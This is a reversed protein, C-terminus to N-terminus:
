KKHQKGSGDRDKLINIPVETGGGAMRDVLPEENDGLYLEPCAFVEVIEVDGDAARRLERYGEILFLGSRDRHRRNRLRVLQKIRPNSPSTIPDPKM